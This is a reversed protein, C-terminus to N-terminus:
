SLMNMGADISAVLETYKNSSYYFKSWQKWAIVAHAANLMNIDAVQINSEYLDHAPSSTPLKELGPITDPPFVTTVRAAGTLGLEGAEVSIGTDVFPIEKDALATAILQRSAADDVCLFVFDYNSLEDVNSADVRSPHAHIVRHMEGYQKAQYDVKSLAEDLDTLSAAGPSRFANHNSFVDDDYLHIARVPTKAVLDLIYSGTGGLGVIAITQPMLLSAYKGIRAKSTNTDIYHFVNYTSSDVPNTVRATVAPDIARAHPVILDIYHTFNEHYTDPEKGNPTNSLRCVSPLGPVLEENQEGGMLLATLKNGQADHPMHTAIVVHSNPKITQNGQVNLGDSILAGYVIEREATVFPINTIVLHDNQVSIAYGDSRLQQLDVSHEVLPHSM